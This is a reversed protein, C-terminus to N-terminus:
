EGKEEGARYEAALKESMAVFGNEIAKEFDIIVLASREMLEQLRKPAHCYFEAIKEYHFVAHRGAAYALFHKVEDPIGKAEEIEKLLELTKTADVLESVPPPQDMKPEYVPIQVKKTYIGPTEEAPEGNLTREHSSVTTTPPFYEEFFEESNFEVLPLQETKLLDIDFDDKVFDFLGENSVHGYQSIDQLVRRKAEAVDRAEVFYVPVPPVEWGKDRMRRLVLVRRKGGVVKNRGDQKVVALPWAYGTAEIERELSELEAEDSVKVKGQFDVDLEDLPIHDKVDVAIRIQGLKEKNKRM